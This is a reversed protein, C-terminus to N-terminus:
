QNAPLDRLMNEFITVTELDINTFRVLRLSSQPNVGLFIITTELMIQACRPKPFGFIGSSIAPLAISTFNMEAAKRLSNQVASRLLEDENANGGHWVPGVAHIVYRCPLSGAGTVAVQGVALKGNRSIWEDSEAQIVPGGQRVIAGAVGGGHELFSNAANVIADCDEQTLDAHCVQIVQGSPVTMEYRLM